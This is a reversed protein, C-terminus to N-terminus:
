TPTIVANAITRKIYKIGEKSENELMHNAIINKRVIDAKASNIGTSKGVPPLILM